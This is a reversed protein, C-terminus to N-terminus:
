SVNIETGFLKNPNELLRHNNDIRCLAYDLLRGNKNTNLFSYRSVKACCKSSSFLFACFTNQQLFISVELNRNIQVLMCANQSGKFHGISIGPSL